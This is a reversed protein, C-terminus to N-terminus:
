VACQKARDTLHIVNLGLFRELHVIDTVLLDLEQALILRNTDAILQPNDLLHTL